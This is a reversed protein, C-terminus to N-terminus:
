PERRKVLAGMMAFMLSAGLVHLAGALLRDSRVGGTSATKM